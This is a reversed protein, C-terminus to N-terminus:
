KKLSFDSLIVISRDKVMYNEQDYLERFTFNEGAPLFTDAVLHWRGHIPKPLQFSIDGWYMNFVVYLHEGKEPHVMEMALTHSSPSWDAGNLAAGHWLVYPRNIDHGVKILDKLEFLSLGQTYEILKRTYEFTQGHRELDNWDFWASPNNQCYANNNGFQTRRVEDGMVFMPTGQTFFMATMFNRVQRERVAEVAPDDTAGEVGYNCSFNEDLGDRNDEGNPLNHKCNYSVLDGMTFGDHCSVFHISQYIDQHPNVYIDPSGIIRAALIPVMGEDSRIFKRIDDRYAGNWEAWRTDGNRGAFFGLQYLGAADWAEAILKTDALVPDVEISNVAPSNVLVQGDEGRTLVAALDFRFGDIHMQEVWYRLSERMVRRLIPDSVNVTNGCGTYDSFQKNEDLMYYVGAEQGKFNLWPGIRGSEATHNYVVDLIVEIGAKHLAKVMDKFERITTIPDPSSGYGWHPAFFNVPSYGWYNELGLPADQPDFVCVPMLEVTTIGLEKLYPIKEAVGLFTGRKEPSVGSNPNATFGGVHMEYIVSSSLPRRPHRDDEWDYTGDAVVVSKLATASNELGFVSADGRSYGAGYIGKAFPDSLLKSGDFHLGKSPAYEGHVKYGYYLGEGAGEVFVHWYHYSRNKEPDLKIIQYPVADEPNKFLWLEVSRANKSYMSFNVGGDSVTSGLPAPKGASIGHKAASPTKENAQLSTSNM